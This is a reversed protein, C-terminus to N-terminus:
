AARSTLTRQVSNRRGKPPEQRNMMGCEAYLTEMIIGVARENGVDFWMGSHVDMSLFRGAPVSSSVANVISCAIKRKEADDLAKAFADKHLNIWVKYRQNGVLSCTTKGKGCVVDNYSVIISGTTSNLIIGDSVRPAPAPQSPVEEMVMAQQQPPHTMVAPASANSVQRSKEPRTFSAIPSHFTHSSQKWVLGDYGPPPVIQQQQAAATAPDTISFDTEFKRKRNLSAMHQAAAATASSVAHKRRSPAKEFTRRVNAAQAAIQSMIDDRSTLGPANVPSASAAATALSDM